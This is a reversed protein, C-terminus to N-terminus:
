ADKESEDDGDGEADALAEQPTQPQHFPVTEETVKAKEVVLDLAKESALRHKMEDRRRGKYIGKLKAVPVGMRDAEDKIAEDVDKDGLEIHEQKALAELLLGARVDKIAQPRAEEKLKSGQNHWILEAQKQPLQGLRGMVMQEAHREVLSEPVDFPNNDILADLASDRLSRETRSTGQAELGERISKKLDDLTEFDDSVDKAFEDDLEPRKKIKLADPKMSLVATKGRVEEVRFDDPVTIEVEFRDGLKKGVLAQEAETYFRGAGVEIVYAVGSLGKVYDGDVTGSFTTEVLDGQQVTDRDEVPVVKVHMELIRDIESDITNDDVEYTTKKLALGEWTGVELEPKVEVKASYSFDLGSILAAKTDIEPDAVPHLDNAEVADRYSDNLLSELVDREVDAKYYQELVYRPVKGPRFGKLRVRQGLRRYARDLEKKVSEGAITISLEKQVTSLEKVETKTQLAM